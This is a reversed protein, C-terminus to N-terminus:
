RLPMGPRGPRGESPVRISAAAAALRNGAEASDFTGLLANGTLARGMRDVLRASTGPLPEPADITDVHDGTVGDFIWAASVDGASGLFGLGDENITGSGQTAAGVLKLPGGGPRHEARPHPVAQTREDRENGEQACAGDVRPPASIRTARILTQGSGDRTIVPLEPSQAAAEKNPMDLTGQGLVPKGPLFKLTAPNPTAETQIFM